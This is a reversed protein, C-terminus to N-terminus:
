NHFGKKYNNNAILQARIENTIKIAHKEDKAWCKLRLNDALVYFYISQDVDINSCDAYKSIIVDGNETMEIDFRYYGKPHEPFVDTEIEEIDRISGYYKIAEKALEKTTYIGCFHYDSYEGNSVLYLKM